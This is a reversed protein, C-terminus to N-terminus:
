NVHVPLDYSGNDSALTDIDPIGHIAICPHKYPMITERSTASTVSHIYLVDVWKSCAHVIVPLM